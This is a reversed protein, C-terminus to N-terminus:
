GEVAGDLIGGHHSNLALEFSSILIEQIGDIDMDAIYKIKFQTTM